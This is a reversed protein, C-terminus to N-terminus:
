IIQTSHRLKQLKEIDNLTMGPYIPISQMSPNIFLVATAVNSVTHVLVDCRALGWADAIVDEALSLSWNSNNKANLHQIQFGEKLRQSEPLASYQTSEPESVRWVGSITILAKGFATSFESIVSEQDTALFIRFSRDPNRNLEKQLLEEAIKIYDSALAIKSDPQEMAHSPHRVHMGILYCDEPLDKFTEELRSRVNSNPTLGNLRSNMSYRWSQFGASRYLKDANVFTLNPDASANFSHGKLGQDLLQDIEAPSKDFQGATDFLKFYINGDQPQGYCFSTFDKTKWFKQISSVRWDPYVNSFGHEGTWSNQISIFTNFIAFFGADHGVIILNKRNQKSRTSNKSIEFLEKRYNHELTRFDWEASAGSIIRPDVDSANICTVLGSKIDKKSILSQTGFIKNGFEPYLAPLKGNTPILTVGPLNKLEAHGPIDTILIPLGNSLAQRAPINFGEGSSLSILLDFSEILALYEAESHKEDIVRLYKSKTDKDILHISDHFKAGQKLFGSITLHFEHGEAWLEAASELLLDLNKRPHQSAIIGFQKIKRKPRIARMGSSLVFRRVDLALPLTVVNMEPIHQRVLNEIFLTPTIIKDFTRLVQVFNEPILDSDWLLIGVLYGSKSNQLARQLAVNHWPMEAFVVIEDQRLAKKVERATSVGWIQVWKMPIYSGFMRSLMVSVEAMGTQDHHRGVFLVRKTISGFEGAFSTM